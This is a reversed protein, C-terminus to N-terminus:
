ELNLYKKMDDWFANLNQRNLKRDFGFKIKNILCIILIRSIAHASVKDWNLQTELGFKSDYIENM